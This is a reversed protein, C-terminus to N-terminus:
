FSYVIEEIRYDICLLLLNRLDGKTESKKCYYNSHKCGDNAVEVLFESERVYGDLEM